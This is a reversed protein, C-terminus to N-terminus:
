FKPAPLNQGVGIKNAARTAAAFEEEATKVAQVVMALVMDEAEETV